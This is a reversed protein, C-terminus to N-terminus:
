SRAEIADLTIGDHSYVEVTRGGLAGSREAAADRISQRFAQGDGDGREWLATEAVDLSISGTDMNSTM